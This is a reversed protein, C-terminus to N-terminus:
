RLYCIFAIGWPEEVDDTVLEINVEYDFTEVTNEVYYKHVQSTSEKNRIFSVLESIDNDSLVNAFSPMGKETIGIKINNIIDKDNMGFQWIGDSLSKGLGGQFKAGHCTGCYKLYNKEATESNINISNGALTSISLFTIICILQIM